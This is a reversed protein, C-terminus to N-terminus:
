HEARYEALLLDVMAGYSQTGASQNNAKLYTDNVQEGIENTVTDEFQDWYAANARLDRWMAESFEAAVDAYLDPAARHLANASYTLALMIGSYALIEDGHRTCALYALYNAEDERMIGATHCLEHCMAAPITYDTTDTNVNAEGTFPSYVGVIGFYSMGRSCLVSKPRPYSFKLMEEEQGLSTMAWQAVEDYACPLTFVGNADEYATLDERLAAAKGALDLCLAYLEEQTSERVELGAAEAYPLRYYNIGCGFVFLAFVLGLACLANLVGSLLVRWRQGKRIIIHLVWVIVAIPVFVCVAYLLMEGLSFPLCEPLLSIARHYLPYIGRAYVQEAFAESHRAWLLIIGAFPWLLLLFMRLPGLTIRKKRTKSGTM